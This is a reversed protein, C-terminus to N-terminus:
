AVEYVRRQCQSVLLPLPALPFMPLCPPLLMFSSPPLRCRLRPVGVQGVLGDDIGVTLHGDEQVLVMGHSGVFATTVALPLAFGCRKGDGNSCSSLLLLLHSRHSRKVDQALGAGLSRDGSSGSREDCWRCLLLRLIPFPLPHCLCLYYAYCRSM